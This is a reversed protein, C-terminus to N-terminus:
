GIFQLFRIYLELVFICGIDKIDRESDFCIYAVRELALNEFESARIAIIPHNWENKPVVATYSFDIFKSVLYRGSIVSEKRLLCQQRAIARALSSALCPLFAFGLVVSYQKLEMLDLSLQLLCNFFAFVNYQMM